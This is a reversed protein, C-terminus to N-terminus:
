CDNARFSFSSIFKGSAGMYIFEVEGLKSLLRRTKPSSCWGTITKKKNDDGIYKEGSSDLTYLYTLKVGSLKNHCVASTLESYKNIRMPTRKNIADSIQTCQKLSFNKAYSSSYILSIFIIIMLSHTLNKM